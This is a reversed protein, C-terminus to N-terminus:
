YRPRTIAERLQEVDGTKRRQVVADVPLTEMTNYTSIGVLRVEEPLLLRSLHCLIYPSRGNAMLEPSSELWAAHKAVRDKKVPSRYSRPLALSGVSADESLPVPLLTTTVQKNKIRPKGVWLTPVEFAEIRTFTEPKRVYELEGKLRGGLVIVDPTPLEGEHMAVIDLAAMGLRSTHTVLEHELPALAHRVVDAEPRHMPEHSFYFQDFVAVNLM